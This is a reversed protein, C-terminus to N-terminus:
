CSYFIIRCLSCLELSETFCAFVCWIRSLIYLWTSLLISDSVKLAKELNKRAQSILAGLKNYLKKIADLTQNVRRPFDVQRKDVLQRGTKIM